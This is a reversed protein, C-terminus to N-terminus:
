ATSELVRDVARERLRDRVRHSAEADTRVEVVHSGAAATAEAYADRFAARDGGDIRAFSLDYLDATPEFALGHPTV